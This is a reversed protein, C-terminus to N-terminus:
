IAADYHVAGHQLSIYVIRPLQFCRLEEHGAYEGFMDGLSCTQSARPRPDWFKLSIPMIHAYM